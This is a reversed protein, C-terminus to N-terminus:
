EKINHFIDSPKKLTVMYRAQQFGMGQKLAGLFQYKPDTSGSKIGAQETQM